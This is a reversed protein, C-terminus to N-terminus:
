KPRRAEVLKKAAARVVDAVNKNNEIMALDKIRLTSIHNLAIGAPTKPNTVLALIIYYSKLWERKKAITRLVEESSNRSKAILEIEGETIKPNELVTLMVEKNPDRILISRIDRGGKLALQIREGVRMRQVRLLLTQAKQEETLEEEIVQVAPVQLTQAVFERTPDPTRPHRLLYQLIEPRHTNARAVEDFFSPEVTRDTLLIQIVDESLASLDLAILKLDEM